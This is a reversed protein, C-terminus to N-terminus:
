LRGLVDAILSQLGGLQGEAAPLLYPQPSVRGGPSGQEILEGHYVSQGIYVTADGTPAELKDELIIEKHRTAALSTALDSQSDYTDVGAGLLYMGAQAAGTDVPCQGRAVNVVTEATSRISDKVGAIMEDTLRDIRISVIRVSSM